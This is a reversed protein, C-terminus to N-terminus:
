WLAKLCDVLQALHHAEIGLVLEVLEINGCCLTELRHIQTGPWRELVIGDDVHHTVLCAAADVGQIRVPDELDPADLLISGEGLLTQSYAGVLSALVEDM